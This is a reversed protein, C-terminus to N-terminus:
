IKFLHAPYAFYFSALCMGFWGLDCCVKIKIKELGNEMEVVKKM